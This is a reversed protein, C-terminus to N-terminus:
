KLMCMSLYSFHILLYCLECLSEMSNEENERLMSHSLITTEVPRTMVNSSSVVRDTGSAVLGVCGKGKVRVDGETRQDGRGAVVVM